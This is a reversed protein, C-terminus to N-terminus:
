NKPTTITYTQTQTGTASAENDKCTANCTSWDSWSGVCDQKCPITCHKTQTDGNAHPCSSGRNSEPTTITYTQTQTGTASAENDKCTANCTSWNGWGGVCDVPCPDTQCSIQNSPNNRYSANATPCSIGGNKSFTKVNRPPPKRIGSMGCGLTGGSPSQCYSFPQSSPPDLVCNVPCPKTTSDPTPCYPFSNNTYYNITPSITRCDVPNGNFTAPKTVRVTYNVTQKGDTSCAGAQPTIKTDAATCTNMAPATTTSPTIMESCPKGGFQEPSIITAKRTKITPQNCYGIPESWDSFQVQCDKACQSPPTTCVRTTVITSNCTTKGSRLQQTITQTGEGGCGGICESIITSPDSIPYYTCSQCTNLYNPSRSKVCQLSPSCATNDLCPAGDPTEGDPWACVSKEGYICLGNTGCDSNTKCDQGKKDSSPKQCAKSTSSPPRCARPAPTPTKQSFPQTANPSSDIGWAWGETGICSNDPDPKCIGSLVM